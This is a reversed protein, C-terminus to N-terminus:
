FLFNEKKMKFSISNNTNSLINLNEDIIEESRVFVFCDDICRLYLLKHKFVPIVKLENYGM